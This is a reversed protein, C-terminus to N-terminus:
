ALDLQSFLQSVQHSIEQLDCVLADFSCSSDEKALFWARLGALSRAHKEALLNTQRILGLAKGQHDAGSLAVPMLHLTLFNVQSSIQQALGLAHQIEEAGGSLDSVAAAAQQHLTSVKGLAASIALLALQRPPDTKLSKLEQDLQRGVSCFAQELQVADGPCGDGLVAAGSSQPDLSICKEM